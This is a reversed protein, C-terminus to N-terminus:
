ARLRCVRELRRIIRERHSPVWNSQEKAYWERALAEFSDERALKRAAREASPDVGDAVWRSPNVLLYLGREDFRKFPKAQPKLARIARDTLSM